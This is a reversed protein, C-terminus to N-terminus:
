FCVSQSCRLLSLLHSIADREPDILRIPASARRSCTQSFLRLLAALSSWQKQPGRRKPGTISHDSELARIPPCESATSGASRSPRGFRGDTAVGPQRRASSNTPAPAPSPPDSIRSQLNPLPLRPHIASKLKPIQFCACAHCLAARGRWGRILMKRQFGGHNHRLSPGPACLHRHVPFIVDCAVWIRSPLGRMLPVRM